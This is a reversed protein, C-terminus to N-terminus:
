ASARTLVQEVRLVVVGATKVTTITLVVESLRDPNGSTLTAPVSIQPEGTNLTTLICNRIVCGSCHITRGCGQPLRSHACDFVPGILQHLLREPKRGLYECAKSNAGVVGTNNDVVLIPIRIGDIYTQFSVGNNSFFADSCAQCIGHSTQQDLRNSESVNVNTGCWACILRM